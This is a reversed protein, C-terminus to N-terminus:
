TLGKIFLFFYNGLAIISPSFKLLNILARVPKSYPYTGVSIIYNRLFLLDFPFSSLDEINKNLLANVKSLFLHKQAKILKHLYYVGIFNHFIFFISIAILPFNITFYEKTHTFKLTIM